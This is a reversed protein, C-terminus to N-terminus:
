SFAVGSIVARKRLNFVSLRRPNSSGGSTSRLYPANTRPLFHSSPRDFYQERQLGLAPAVFVNESLLNSSEPRSYLLQFTPEGKVMCGLARNCAVSM